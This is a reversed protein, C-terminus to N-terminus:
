NCQWTVALKQTSLELCNTSSRPFSNEIWAFLTSYKFLVRVYQYKEAILMYNVTKNSSEKSWNSDHTVSSKEATGRLYSSQTIWAVHTINISQNKISM